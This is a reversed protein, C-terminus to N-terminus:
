RFIAPLPSMYGIAFCIAFLIICIVFWTMLSIGCSRGDRLTEEASAGGRGARVTADADLESIPRSPLRLRPAGGFNVGGAYGPYDSAPRTAGADVATQAGANLPLPDTPALLTASATPVEALWQRRPAMTEENSWALTRQVTARAVRLAPPTQSPVSPRALALRQAEDELAIALTEADRIAQPHDREVSRLTLARLSEPVDARFTRRATDTPTTLLQWLLLGTAWVDREVEAHRWFDDRVGADAATAATSAESDGSDDIAGDAVTMSRAVARAMATFYTEDPPLSFNNIRVIAHRDVLVAAPTLDGHTMERGHAYAVARAIQGVLDVARLSPAGDQLYVSLPRAAVYEQILFLEDDRTYADYATITAPHALAATKRLAQRYADSLAPPTVKVVIPRQLIADQGRYVACLAGHALLETLEYRSGLRLGLYTANAGGTAETTTSEPAVAERM